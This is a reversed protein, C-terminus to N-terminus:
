VSLMDVITRATADAVAAEAAAAAVAAALATVIVVSLKVEPRVEPQAPLLRGAKADAEVEVTQMLCVLELCQATRGPVRAVSRVAPQRFAKRRALM